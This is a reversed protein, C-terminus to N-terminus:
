RIQTQGERFIRSTLREWRTQCGKMAPPPIVENKKRLEGMRMPILELDSDHLENRVVKVKELSLEAQVPSRATKPNVPKKISSRGKLLHSFPNIKVAWKAQVVPKQKSVVTPLDDAQRAPKAKEKPPIMAPDAETVRARTAPQATKPEFLPITELHAPESSPSESAPVPVIDPLYPLPESKPTPAFPNKASGFKPLLNQTTMRYPSDSDKVGMLSKGASLLRLLSM